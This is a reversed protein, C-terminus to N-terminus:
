QLGNYCIFILIHAFSFAEPDSEAQDIQTNDSKKPKAQSTFYKKCKRKDIVPIKQASMRMKGKSPPGPKCKNGQHDIFKQRIM